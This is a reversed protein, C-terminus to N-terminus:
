GLGTVGEVICECGGGSLRLRDCGGFRVGLWHCGGCCGFGAVRGGMVTVGKVM